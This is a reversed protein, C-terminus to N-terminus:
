SKPRISFKSIIQLHSEFKDALGRRELAQSIAKHSQLIQEIRRQHSLSQRHIRYYYLLEKVHYIETMESLRLCLDYDEVLELDPDIGGVQDYVSRRILRFHFIMFDVLLREKSYPIDCREGEGKIWGKEDIVAYNTYVLGISPHTDLIEVTSTLATPALVDDSDVQAVYKGETAAFASQLARGQGQHKAAIVRVRKDQEAYQRAIEVSCDTSGDDWVLLEFNRYTQALVSEVTKALYQERNYVTTVISVSPTM